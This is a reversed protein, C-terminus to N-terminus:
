LRTKKTTRKNFNKTLEDLLKFIEGADEYYCSTSDLYSKLLKVFDATIGKKRFSKTKIKKTKIFFKYFPYKKDMLIKPDIDKCIKYYDDINFKNERTLSFKENFLNGTFRIKRTKKNKKDFYTYTSWFSKEYINEGSKQLTLGFKSSLFEDVDNKSSFFGASNKKEMVTLIENKFSKKKTNQNPLENQFKTQTISNTLIEMKKAFNSIKAKSLRYGRDNEDRLTKGTKLDRNAISIHWHPHKTDEHKVIYMAYKNKQPFLETKLKELVLESHKNYDNKDSFTVLFNYTLVTQNKHHKKEIQALIEEFEKQNTFVTKAKNPNKFSDFGNQRLMYNKRKEWELLTENALKSREFLIKAKSPDKTKAWNGLRLLYNNRKDWGGFHTNTM